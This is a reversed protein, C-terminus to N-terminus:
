WCLELIKSESDATIVWREQQLQLTSRHRRSERLKVTQIMKPNLMRVETSNAIDVGACGPYFTRDESDGACREYWEVAVAYDGAGFRM